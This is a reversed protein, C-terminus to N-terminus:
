RRSALREAAAAPAPAVPVANASQEMPSLWFNENGVSTVAEDLLMVDPLDAADLMQVLGGISAHAGRGRPGPPPRLPGASGDGPRGMVPPGPPGPQTIFGGTGPGTSQGNAASGVCAALAVAAM